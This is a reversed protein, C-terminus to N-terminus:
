KRSKKTPSKRKPSKRKPSKRKPSKRKPSKRGPSKKKRCRHSTVDRTKRPSCKKKRCRRSSVDRTEGKACKRCRSTKRNLKQSRKCKKRMPSYGYRINEFYKKMLKGIEEGYGSKLSHELAENPHTIYYNRNYNHKSSWNIGGSPHRVLNNVHKLWEEEAESTIDDVHM